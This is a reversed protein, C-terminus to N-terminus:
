TVDSPRPGMDPTRLEIEWDGVIVERSYLVPEREYPPRERMLISMTVAADELTEYTGRDIGNRLKVKYETRTFTM